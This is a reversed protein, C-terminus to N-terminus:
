LYQVKRETEFAQKMTRTMIYVIYIYIGGIVGCREEYTVCILSRLVTTTKRNICLKIRQVKAETIKKPM